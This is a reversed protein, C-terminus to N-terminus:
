NRLRFFFRVVFFPSIYHLIKALHVSISLINCSIGLGIEEESFSNVGVVLSSKSVFNMFHSVIVSEMRPAIRVLHVISRMDFTPSMPNAKLIHFLISDNYRSVSNILCSEINIKRVVWVNESKLSKAYNALSILCCEIRSLSMTLLFTGSQIYMVHNKCLRLESYSEKQIISVFLFFSFWALSALVSSSNSEIRSCTRLRSM